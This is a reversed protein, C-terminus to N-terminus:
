GLREVRRRAQDAARRQQTAARVARKKDSEAAEADRTIGILDAELAALRKRCKEIDAQVDKRRREIEKVANWAQAAAEDAAQAESEAADFEAQAEDLAAKKKAARREALSTAEEGPKKEKTKPERQTGPKSQSEPQSQGEPQSQPKPPSTPEPEFEGGAVAGDLDVEEFGSGSLGRVLRGTAVAAAAGADAMAARFTREVDTAAAASLPFGLEAALDKADHVAGTLEGQRQLGLQRFADADGDEQAARLSAGFRVVGDIVEPKHVALANIAWAGAAPKGLKGIDKALEKDGADKAERVLESRRATFDRPLVAYLEQAADRLDM